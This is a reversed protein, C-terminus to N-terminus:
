VAPNLFLRPCPPSAGGPALPVIAGTPDGVVVAGGNLILLKSMVTIMDNELRIWSSADPSQMQISGDDQLLIAQGEGHIISLAELEPDFSISMAKAGNAYPVYLAGITELDDSDDFSLFGGGYGVLAVTGPKPAPFARNFRLDRWALPVLGDPTRGAMAEAGVVQTGDPTSVSEPPRPRFVIGPAGYAEADQSTEGQEEGETTSGVGSDGGMLVASHPGYVTSGTVSLHSFNWDGFISPDVRM